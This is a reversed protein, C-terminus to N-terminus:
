FDEAINDAEFLSKDRNKYMLLAPKAKVQAELAVNVIRNKAAKDIKYSDSLVFLAIDLLLTKIGASVCLAAKALTLNNTIAFTMNIKIFIM